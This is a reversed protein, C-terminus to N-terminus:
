VVLFLGSTAYYSLGWEPVVFAWASALSLAIAVTAPGVGGYWAVLLIPLYYLAYPARSHLLPELPLRLLTVGGIALVALGYGRPSSHRRDRLLIASVTPAGPM